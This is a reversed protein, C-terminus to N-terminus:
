GEASVYWDDQRSLAELRREYGKSTLLDFIKQRMSTNNHECTITRFRYREFDFNSLIEYESGETDISLYDITNPADYKRLLDFLSITEVDYQTGLERSKAHTDSANYSSITSLVPQTTENFPLIVDSRSWVCKTEIHCTRDARLAEHWCRAPEALIGTWGYEHELLYTNSLHTGSAAGFEVFYGDRKRGLAMLVFLDQWHQSKARTVDEIFSSASTPVAALLFKLGSVARTETQLQRELKVLRKAMHSDHLLHAALWRRLKKLPKRM